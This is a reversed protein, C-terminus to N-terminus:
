RAMNNPLHCCLCVARLQDRNGARVKCGGHKIQVHPCGRNGSFGAGIGQVSSRAHHRKRTGGEGARGTEGEGSVCECVCARLRAERRVAGTAASCGARGRHAPVRGSPTCVSKYHQCRWPVDILMIRTCDRLLQKRAASQWPGGCLEAERGRQQRTTM